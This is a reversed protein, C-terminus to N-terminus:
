SAIAPITADLHRWGKRKRLFWVHSSRIGYRAALVKNSETSAIIERVQDDNLKARPNKMGQQEPMVAKLLGTRYAHLLQESHTIYELNDVCNNEKNGDKHNVELGTPRPGLFAEAVLIHIYTQKQTAVTGRSVLVKLYGAGAPAGKLVRSSRTRGRSDCRVVSRVRGLDSVEYCNEYGPAPLWKEACSSTTSQPQM